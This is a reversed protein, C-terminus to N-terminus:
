SGGRNKNPLCQYIRSSGYGSNLLKSTLFDSYIRTVYHFIFYHRIIQDVRLLAKYTIPMYM